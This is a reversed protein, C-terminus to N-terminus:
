WTPSTVIQTYNHPEFVRDLIKFYNKLCCTALNKSKQDLNFDGLIITEINNCNAMSTVITEIQDKFAIVRPKNNSPNFSRYINNCMKNPEVSEYTSTRIVQHCSLVDM